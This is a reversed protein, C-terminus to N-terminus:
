HSFFYTKPWRASGYNGSLDRAVVDEIEAYNEVYLMRRKMM